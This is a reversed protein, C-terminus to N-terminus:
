RCWGATRQRGSTPSGAAFPAHTVGLVLQAHHGCPADGASPWRRACCSRVPSTRPGAPQRCTSTTSSQELIVRHEFCPQLARLAGAILYLGGQLRRLDRRSSGQAQGTPPYGPCADPETLRPLSRRPFWLQRRGACRQNLRDSISISTPLAMTTAHQHPHQQAGADRGCGVARLCSGAPSGRDRGPM